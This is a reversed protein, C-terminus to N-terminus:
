VGSQAWAVHNSPLQVCLAPRDSKPIFNPSIYIYIYIYLRQHHQKRGKRIHGQPAFAVHDAGMAKAYQIPDARAEPLLSWDRAAACAGCETEQPNFQAGDGSTFPACCEELAPLVGLTKSHAGLNGASANQFVLFLNLDILYNDQSKAKRKMKDYCSSPISGVPIPICSCHCVLM